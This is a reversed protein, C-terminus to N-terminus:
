PTSRERWAWRFLNRADLYRADSSTSGLVILLLHDDGRRGSAVLCAGAATTTGTKIGDFGEISLLRNTNTWAVNRQYGGPGILTCAYQRTNVYERFTPLQWAAFALKLQDRASSQHRKATLGHTNVYVTHNMELAAAQRNMAAVFRDLPEIDPISGEPLPCRDGLHEALAVSADNGSPLLLGYLLDGVRIKEGARITASSGPTRDARESFVVWEDFLEPQQHALQLVVYATMMKTTSAFDRPEDADHGWLLKGTSGEAIAWARCTVLPPGSLTDPATRPLREQNLSAPDVVPADTTVLTGLSQWTAADVVGSEGLGHTSQFRLVAAQTAPGFDGDIALQPSPDLRSNITRQLDEVLLGQAGLELRQPEDPRPTSPSGAADFVAKAIKACLVNASNDDSWRQDENKATLVCLAIPEAPAYIIGADCRVNSVAGTKHAVRTGMPLLHGFRTTDQCNALHDLMERTAVEDALQGLFLRELLDLMEAATTSGLGFERSRDPAISTDSRFVKAHLRTQTWGLSQMTASTSELGIQDIVLNTATNDSYAIMLRIADRLRIQTGASFHPTLLGSGPVKDEERLTVMSDLDITGAVAQRYTEVMIPLKILSATPMTAGARYSFQRGTHLFKVAVGVNGRHSQVLTQIEDEWTAGWSTAGALALGIWMGM